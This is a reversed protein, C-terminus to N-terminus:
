AASQGKVRTIRPERVASERMEQLAVVLQRVRVRGRRLRGRSGFQLGTGVELAGVEYSYVAAVSVACGRRGEQM